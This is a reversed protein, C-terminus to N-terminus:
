LYKEFWALTRELREVRRKPKGNRGLGHSEDQFRILETPVGIKQLAIFWQEAQEMPCRHDNESHIILCPTTVNGVYKLPSLDWYLKQNEWPTGMDQDLSVLAIDDTGFMSTMNCISRDTVAAKFRDSHGLIWNTSFGGYSGGTVGLRNPDLGGLSLVHDVAAMFDPMDAVGWAAQVAKGFANTRGTSGRPNTFVLAYGRAVYM